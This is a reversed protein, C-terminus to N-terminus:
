RVAQQNRHGSTSLNFRILAYFGGVPTNSLQAIVVKPPKKKLDAPVKSSPVLISMRQVAIINKSPTIEKAKM